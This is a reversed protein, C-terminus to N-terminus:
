RIQPKSMFAAMQEDDFSRQQDKLHQDADPITKLFADVTTKSGPESMGVIHARCADEALLAVVGQADFCKCHKPTAVCGSFAEKDGIALPASAPNLPIGAVVVAPVQVPTSGLVPAAPAGPTSPTAASSLAKGTVASSMTAIAKPAIAIGGVIAIVPIILWPPIKQRQKTHLESSKYLKFAAKPYSWMSSTSGRTILPNVACGDWDYILARGMGFLRRVHQHRGVLRRVNQDILMPNQTVIIFDVGKHRHTELAQIMKPPKTSMGRPRWWRQVEDVVIVDGPQCWDFWNWLGDGDATAVMSGDQGEEGPAMMEHVLVLNAIGDVVVRRNKENGEKDTLKEAALRQVLTSVAYLTKGSGPVGTILYIM